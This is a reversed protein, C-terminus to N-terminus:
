FLLGGERAGTAVAKIRGHYQNGNKDFVIKTINKAKCREALVKGIEMCVEENARKHNGKEFSSASVLTHGTIDDIVQAYVHRTSRFVSMRPREATGSIRARIRRKRRLRLQQRAKIKKEM